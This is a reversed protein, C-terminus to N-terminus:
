DNENFIRQILDNNYKEAIIKAENLSAGELKKVNYDYFFYGAGGYSIVWGIINKNYPEEAFCEKDDKVKLWDGKIEVPVYTYKMYDKIVESSDNPEKRLPNHPNEYLNPYGSLVYEEANKCDVIDRYKKRDIIYKKGNITIYYYNENYGTCKVIFIGYEPDYALVKLMKKYLYDEDIIEYKKKNIIIHKNEFSIVTDGIENMIVLSKGAHYIADLAIFLYEKDDSSTKPANSKLKKYFTSDMTKDNSLVNNGTENHIKSSRNLNECSGFLLIATFLFLISNRMRRMNKLLLCNYWFRFINPEL